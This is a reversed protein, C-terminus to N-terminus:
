KWGPFQNLQQVREERLLGKKASRRTHDSWQGLRYGDPSVYIHPVFANGHEQVFTGFRAIATEWREQHSFTSKKSVTSRSTATM